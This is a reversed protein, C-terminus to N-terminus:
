TSKHIKHSQFTEWLQERKVTDYAKEYDLFHRTCHSM